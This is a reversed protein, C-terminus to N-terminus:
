KLPTGADPALDMRAVIKQAVIDKGGMWEVLAKSGNTVAYELAVELVKNGVPVSLSQGKAAGAVSNIGYGIARELLQDVQYTKIVATISAPLKRLAFALVSVALTIIVSASTSLLDGWPIVVQGDGATQATQALSPSCLAVLALAAFLFIKM